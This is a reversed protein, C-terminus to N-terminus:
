PKPFGPVGLERCKNQADLLHQFAEGRILYAETARDWAEYASLQESTMAQREATKM